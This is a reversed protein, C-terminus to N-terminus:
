TLNRQSILMHVTLAWHTKLIDLARAWAKGGGTLSAIIIKVYFTEHVTGRVVTGHAPAPPWHAELVRARVKDPRALAAVLLKWGPGPALAM